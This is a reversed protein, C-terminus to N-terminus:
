NTATLVFIVNGCSLVLKLPEGNSQSYLAAGKGQMRSREIRNFTVEGQNIEGEEQTELAFRYPGSGRAFLGGPALASSSFPAPRTSCPFMPM